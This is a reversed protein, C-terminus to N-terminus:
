LLADVNTLRPATCGLIEGPSLPRSQPVTVEYKGTYIPVSTSVDALVVAKQNDQTFEDSVSSSSLLGVPTTPTPEAREGLLDEKLAHVASVFQITSILSLRTPETLTAQKGKSSQGSDDSSAEIRLQATAASLVEGPAM